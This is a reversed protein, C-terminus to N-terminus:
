KKVGLETGQARIKKGQVIGIPLGSGQAKHKEYEFIILM